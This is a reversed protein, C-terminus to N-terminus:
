ASPGSAGIVERYAAELEATPDGFLEHVVRENREGYRRRLEPDRVLRFIAATVADEDRCEIMEAGEDQQVWEDISPAYGAVVPLGSAMCELLSPPASDTSQITVAFDASAILAPLQDHEVRHFAVVDTLGLEQVLAEIESRTWGGRAALVLRAQPEERAVRAFARILVDLNSYPRFNRLSLVVLADKPWGLTARLGARDAAAPTFGDIEAHWVIRRVKAPDGAVSLAAREIALSNTVILDAGELAIRALRRGREHEIETMVDRAWPSVVLPRFGSEAAWYGYPQLYHAHIVDAEIERALHAIAPVIRARRVVPVRLLPELHQLRHVTLRETLAASPPVRDSVTHVDHGRRALRQAWRLFNLSKADGIGLIRLPADAM